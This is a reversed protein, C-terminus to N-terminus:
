TSVAGMVPAFASNFFLTLVYIFYKIHINKIILEFKTMLKQIYEYLRDAVIDEIPPLSLALEIPETSVERMSPAFASNFFLTLM